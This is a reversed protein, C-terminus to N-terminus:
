HAHSHAHAERILKRNLWHAVMMVTAGALSVATELVLQGNFAFAAVALLSVGIVALAAVTRSHHCRYGPIFSWLAVGIVLVLLVPHAGGFVSAFAPGLTVFIPTTVCHVACVASLIQGVTDPPDADAHSHEAM